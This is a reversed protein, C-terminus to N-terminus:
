SPAERPHRGAQFFMPAASPWIRGLPKSLFRLTAKFRWSKRRKRRIERRRSKRIERQKPGRANPVFGALLAHSKQTAGVACSQAIKGRVTRSTGYLAAGFRRMRDGSRRAGPNRLNRAARRVCPTLVPTTATPTSSCRSGGGSADPVGRLYPPCRPPGMKDNPNM